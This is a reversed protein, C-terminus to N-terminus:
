APETHLLVEQPLRTIDYIHKHLQLTILLSKTLLDAVGDLVDVPYPPNTELTRGSQLILGRYFIRKNQRCYRWQVAPPATRM